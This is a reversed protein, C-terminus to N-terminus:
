ASHTAITRTGSTRGSHRAPTAAAVREAGSHQRPDAQVLSRAREQTALWVEARLVGSDGSKIAPRDAGLAERFGKDEGFEPGM